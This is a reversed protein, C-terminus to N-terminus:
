GTPLSRLADGIRSLGETLTADDTAYSMRLHGPAGFPTGPVAAVLKEELLWKALEIDDAHRAKEGTHRSVDVFVYFAGDPPLAEAGPIEALGELVLSRRRTFAQKMAAVEAPVSPDTLAALAAVMSLTTAGSTTQSQIRSAAAVVEKPGAFYGIRYGTMAFTKSVGDVAIVRSGVEPGLAAIPSAYTFDDYVLDRYIDDSLVYAQPAKAAIVEGLAALDAERYGAGTPNSPSNLVILRTRPSIAAELAEPRMRWGEARTTPVFVSVAEALGAMDPYSVWYPSPIVVEDGPDCMSLFLNALSHKAGCSVLIENREFSRGHVACLTKAIADRLAPTGPVPAYHIPGAAAAEAVARTVASPPSFDPEGASFNLVQKGEARLEGARGSVALTASPKIRDARTSIPAQTM